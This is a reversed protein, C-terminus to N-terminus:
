MLCLLTVYTESINYQNDRGSNLSQQQYLLFNQGSVFDLGACERIGLRGEASAASVHLDRSRRWSYSFAVWRQMQSTMCLGTWFCITATNKIQPFSETHTPETISGLHTDYSSLASLARRALQQHSLTMHLGPSAQPFPHCVVEGAPHGQTPLGLATGMGRGQRDEM